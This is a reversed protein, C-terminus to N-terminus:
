TLPLTAHFANVERAIFKTPNNSYSCGASFYYRGPEVPHPLDWTVMVKAGGPFNLPPHDLSLSNRGFILAGQENIIRCGFVLDEAMPTVAVTYSFQLRKTGDEATHSSVGAAMIEAHDTKLSASEPHNSRNVPRGKPLAEGDCPECAMTAPLCPALLRAVVDDSQAVQAQPAAMPYGLWQWQPALISGIRHLTNPDLKRNADGPHGQRFHQHANEGEPMEDYKAAIAQIAAASVKLGLFAVIDSIWDLKRYIVDEYRYLRINSHRLLNLMSEIAANLDQAHDVVFHEIPTDALANRQALFLDRYAGPGPEVHSFRMSFYMSVLMDRPDRVLMITKRNKLLRPSLFTPAHRFGSFCYGDSSFSDPEGIAIDEEQIGLTFLKVMPTFTTHGSIASLDFIINELMSSGAKPLAFVYFSELNEHLPLPAQFVVANTKKHFFTTPRM